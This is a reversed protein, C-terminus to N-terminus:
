CAKYISQKCKGLSKLNEQETIKAEELLEEQTPRWEDQARARRGKRRRGEETREKLRQLTAASKAATSRRISKRELSIDSKYKCPNSCIYKLHQFTL